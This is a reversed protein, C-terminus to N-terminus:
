FHMSVQHETITGYSVPHGGRGFGFGQGTALQMTHWPHTPPRLRIAGSDTHLGTVPLGRDTM